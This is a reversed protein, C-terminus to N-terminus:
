QGRTHPDINYFDALRISKPFKFRIQAITRLAAALKAVGKDNYHSLRDGTTNPNFLDEVPEIDAIAKLIGREEISLNNFAREVPYKSLDMQHMVDDSNKAHSLPVKQEEHWQEVASKNASVYM